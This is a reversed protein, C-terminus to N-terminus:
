LEPLGKLKKERLFGGSEWHPAELSSVTISIIDSSVLSPLASPGGQVLLSLM